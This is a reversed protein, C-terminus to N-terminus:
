GVWKYGQEPVDGRREEATIESARIVLVDKRAIYEEESLYKNGWRELHAGPVADALERQEEHDARERPEPETVPLAPQENRYSEARTGLYELEAFAIVEGTSGDRVEVSLLEYFSSSSHTRPVQALASERDELWEVDETTHKCCVCRYGNSASRTVVYAM